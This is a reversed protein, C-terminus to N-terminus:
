LSGLHLNKVSVTVEEEKEQFEFRRSNTEETEEPESGPSLRQVSNVVTYRLRPPEDEEAFPALTILCEAARTGEKARPNRIGKIPNRTLKRCDM